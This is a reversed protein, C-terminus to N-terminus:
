GNVKFRPAVGVQTTMRLLAAVFSRERRERHEGSKETDETNFREGKEADEAGRRNM